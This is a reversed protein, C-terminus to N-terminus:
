PNKSNNLLEKLEKVQNELQKIKDAYAPLNRFHAELKRSTNIDKAPYGFYYGPKNISKSIGSQAMIVVNDAIEIHGILGVQGALICNNGIKTSGSIGTQSSIVTNEGIVVNHAIQVLNDIKVGKKIITKGLAARDIAVNAGLEVDDEIEVIGIQPIKHYVNKEDTFFGFGDAGIVTGPHIIIRDGLKCKERISVNQFILCNSGIEVDELIVSNHYIKTNDGVKCGSSIVVNKGLAVNKGLKANPHVFATKDIGILNFEPTFYHIILKSFAKNPDEVEIYTIDERTKNFGPKVLIASAKTTDFYKEYSPLYLFTLEGKEAEEIKALNNIELNKNGFIKGGIISSIEEIKIVM